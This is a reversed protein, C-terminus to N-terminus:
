IELYGMTLKRMHKNLGFRNAARHVVVGAIEGLLFHKHNDFSYTGANPDYGVIDKSIGSIAMPTMGLTSVRNYVVWVPPIAIALPIARNKKRGGKKKRRRAM